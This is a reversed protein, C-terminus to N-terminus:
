KNKPAEPVVEVSFLDEEKMVAEYRGMPDLTNNFEISRPIWSESIKYRLVAGTTKSRIVAVGM